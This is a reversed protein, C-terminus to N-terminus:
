RRRPNIGALRDLADLLGNTRQARAREQETGRMNEIALDTPYNVWGDTPMPPPVPPAQVPVAEDIYRQARTEVGSWDGSLWQSTARGRTTRMVWGPAPQQPVRTARDFEEMTYPIPGSSSIRGTPSAASQTAYSNLYNDVAAESISRAHDFVSTAVDSNSPVYNKIHPGLHVDYLSVYYTDPIEELKRMHEIYQEYMQAKELSKIAKAAGEQHRFIIRRWKSNVVVGAITPGYKISFRLSGDEYRYGFGKSM